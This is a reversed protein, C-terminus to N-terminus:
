SMPLLAVVARGVDDLLEQLALSQARLEGAAAERRALCDVVGDLDGVAQARRVVLSDDMPVQLGLIKEDRFLPPHLNQIEAQRFQRLAVNAGARLRIQGGGGGAGLRADHHAREAVHRGFLDFALRRVPPAVDEGESRDQVLHKGALAGEVGVRGALRHGRDELFVRRIQGDRILVDRRPELADDAVADLLVRLPAELRRVVEGEVELGKRAREPVAAAVAAGTRRDLRRRM